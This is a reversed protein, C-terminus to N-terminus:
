GANHRSGGKRKSVTKALEAIRDASAILKGILSAGGHGGVIMAEIGKRELAENVERYKRTTKFVEHGASELRECLVGLLYVQKPTLFDVWVKV